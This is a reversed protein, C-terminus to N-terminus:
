APNATVAVEARMMWTENLRVGAFWTKWGVFGRQGLPDSKSPTNPNIVTPELASKGKLVTCGYSEKGVYIVPYVDTNTGGSSIMGNLTSSGANEFAALEPSLIYRVDEVSGIEEPCLPQRNGYEAVPIFGAMGRIDSELDTHSFAIYAAEVPRTNYHVSGSLIRTIKAAKQAKLSRTIKRQLGLSIKENVANRSSGNAYYVNTGGILEGYLVKEVTSAAQEGSLMAADKLVPDESVDDVKDTIEIVNGYQELTVTVDEYSMRQSTPTVGETLPTTSPGLPVPRRFKITDTRNTPITKNMGFKQLVLIPEAHKLMEAVAYAATRNGIHGYNTQSM